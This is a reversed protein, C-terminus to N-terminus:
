GKFILKRVRERFMRSAERPDGASYISRGIILYRAGAKIAVEIDGGQVGVGPSYISIEDKVIEHIRSIKEPYTAGVILGDARWTLARDAFVEYQAKPKGTKSDLVMQGYGEAAGKHSMYCLVLVGKSKARALEFVPQLGDEWGVFPSVIVADFGADFYCTAIAANTHGVDNIKADMIAPVNLGHARAVIKDAGSYLGLPLVIQRNLKVACINDHVSELIAMSKELQAERDPLFLDLALVINTEKERSHAEITEKFTCVTREGYCVLEVFEGAEIRQSETGVLKM